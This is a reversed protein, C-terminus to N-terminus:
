DLEPPNKKAEQRANLSELAKPVIIGGFQQLGYIGIVGGIAGLAPIATKTLEYSRKKIKDLDNLRRMVTEYEESDPPTDNLHDLLRLRERQYTIENKERKFPNRM